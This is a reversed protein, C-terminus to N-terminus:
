SRHKDSDMISQIINSKYASSTNTSPLRFNYFSSFSFNPALTGVHLTDGM